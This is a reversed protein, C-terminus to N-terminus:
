KLHNRWASRIQASSSRTCAENLADWFTLTRSPWPGCSKKEIIISSDTFAAAQSSFTRWRKDEEANPLQHLLLCHAFSCTYSKASIICSIREADFHVGMSWDSCRTSLMLTQEVHTAGRRKFMDSEPTNISPPYVNSVSRFNCCRFYPLKM